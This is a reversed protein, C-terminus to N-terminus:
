EDDDEDSEPTYTLRDLIDKHDDALMEALKQAQRCWEALSGDDDVFALRGEIEAAHRALADIANGGKTLHTVLQEFHEPKIEAGEREDLHQQYARKITLKTEEGGANSIVKGDRVDVLLDIRGANLLAVTYRAMQNGVAATQEIFTVPSIADSTSLVNSPGQPRSLGAATLERVKDEYFLVTFAAMQSKTQHRRAESNYIAAEAQEGPVVRYDPTIGLDYCAMLRHRGDLLEQEDTVIVANLLGDVEIKSRLSMFEDTTLQPTETAKPHVTLGFHALAAEFRDALQEADNRTDIDGSLPSPTLVTM